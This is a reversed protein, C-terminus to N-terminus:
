KSWAAKGFIGLTENRVCYSPSQHVYVLDTVKSRKRTSNQIQLRGKRNKKVKIATTYKRKIYDGALYRIIYFGKMSIFLNFIAFILSGIETFVPLQHWCTILSCSGSVGHCKCNVKTTKLVMQLSNSIIIFLNCCNDIVNFLKRWSVRRGAENNHLAMLSRSHEKENGKLRPIREQERIDLLNRTFRNSMIWEYCSRQWENLHIAIIWEQIPQSTDLKEPVSVISLRKERLNEKNQPAFHDSM